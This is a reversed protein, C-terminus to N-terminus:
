KCVYNSHYHSYADPNRAALTAAKGRKACYEIADQNVGSVISGSTSHFYFLSDGSVQRDIWPEVTGCAALALVVFISWQKM